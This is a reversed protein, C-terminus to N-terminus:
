IIETDSLQNSKITVRHSYYGNHSNYAVLQLLGVSTRVNIFAINAYGIINELVNYNEDIQDIGLLNAGVFEEINDPTTLYGWRECCNQDNSILFLIEQQNTVIRYGEDDRTCFEEIKEIIEM